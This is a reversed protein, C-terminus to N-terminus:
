TGCRILDISMILDFDTVTVKLDQSIKHINDWYFITFKTYFHLVSFFQSVGFHFWLPEQDVRHLQFKLLYELFVASWGM